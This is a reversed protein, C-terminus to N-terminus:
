TFLFVGSAAVSVSCARLYSIIDFVSFFCISQNRFKELHEFEAFRSPQVVSGEGTLSPLHSSELMHMCRFWCYMLNNRCACCRRAEGDITATM